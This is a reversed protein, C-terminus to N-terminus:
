SLKRITKTLTFDQDMRTDAATKPMLVREKRQLGGPPRHPGPRARGAAPESARPEKRSICTHIRMRGLRM